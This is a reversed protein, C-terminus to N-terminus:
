QVLRFPFQRDGVTLPNERIVLAKLNELQELEVPIESIQNNSLTIYELTKISLLSAPFETLGNNALFLDKLTDLRGFGPPLTGMMRGGYGLYELKPLRALVDLTQAVDLQMNQGMYIGNFGDITGLSEPLTKLDNQFVALSELNRLKGIDESVETIANFSVDLVRLQALDYVRPDIHTLGANNIVLIELNVLRSILAFEADGVPQDKLHLSIVERPAAMAAELSAAPEVQYLEIWTHGEDAAAVPQLAIVSWIMGIYTLSAKRM